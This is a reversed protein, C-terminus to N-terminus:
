VASIPLAPDDSDLLQSAACEFRIAKLIEATIEDVPRDGDIELVADRNLYHRIIPIARAEYSRLRKLITGENDDRRTVLASSDADCKGPVRPLLLHVGYVAGCVSCVQRTSLRKLLVHLPVTLRVVFTGFLHTLGNLKSLCSDLFEAQEHTRPFGDRIFGSACDAELIREVLMHVVVDDPVLDGREM